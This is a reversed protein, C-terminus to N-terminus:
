KPFLGALLKRIEEETEERRRMERMTAELLRSHNPMHEKGSAAGRLYALMEVVSLEEVNVAGLLINIGDLGGNDYYASNIAQLIERIRRHEEAWTM